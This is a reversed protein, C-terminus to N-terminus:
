NVMMTRCGLEISIKAGRAAKIEDCAKSCVLVKTPADESDYHWGDPFTACEAQTTKGLTRAAVDTGSFRVNVKDKDFQQDKPPPPITWECAIPEETVITEKDIRTEKVVVTERIANLAAVFADKGSTVDCANGDANPTCDTGGGVAVRNLFAFDAGVMGLTFIPTGEMAATQTLSVLNNQDVSCEGQPRGDTVLVGVCKQGTRMKHDKCFSSLGRIACETPTFNVPNTGPKASTLSDTIKAANRDAKDVGIAPTACSMGTCYPGTPSKDAQAIVPPFYGLAVDLSKSAPDNVFQSIAGSAQDWSMANCSSAPCFGVMSSSRDLMVYIAVPKIEEVPVEVVTEKVTTVQKAEQSTAACTADPLDVTVVEPQKPEAPGADKNANDAEEDASDDEDHGDDQDDANDRDTGLNSRVGQDQKSCALSLLGSICIWAFVRRLELNM